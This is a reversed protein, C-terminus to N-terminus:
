ELNEHAFRVYRTTNFDSNTYFTHCSSPLGDRGARGVEQYYSEIDKPALFCVLLYLARSFVGPMGVLLVQSTERSGRAHSSGACSM